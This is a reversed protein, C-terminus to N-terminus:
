VTGTRVPVFRGQQGSQQAAYQVQGHLGRVDDENGDDDPQGEFDGATSVAAAAFSQWDPVLTKDAHTGSTSM